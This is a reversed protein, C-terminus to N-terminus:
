RGKNRKVTRVSAVFIAMLENAELQLLSLKQPGVIRSGVLLEMWYITEDLEQAAPM